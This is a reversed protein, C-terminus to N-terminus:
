KVGIDRTTEISPWMSLILFFASIDYGNRGFVIKIGLYFLVSVLFPVINRILLKRRIHAELYYGKIKKYEVIVFILSVLIMLFVIKISMGRYGYMATVIGILFCIVIYSYVGACQLKAINSNNVKYKKKKAKNEKYIMMDKKNLMIIEIIMNLIFFIITLIIKKKFNLKLDSFAVFAGLFRVIFDIVAYKKIYLHEKHYKTEMLVSTATLFVFPVVKWLEMFGEIKMNNSVFLYIFNNLYCLINLNINRRIKNKM